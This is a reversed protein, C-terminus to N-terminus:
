GGVHVPDYQAEFATLPTAEIATCIKGNQMVRLFACDEERAESVLHDLPGKGTTIYTVGTASGNLGALVVLSVALRMPARTPSSSPINTFPTSLAMTTDKALPTSRNDAPTAGANPRFDAFADRSNQGGM